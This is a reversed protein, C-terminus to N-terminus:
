EKNERIKKDLFESIHEKIEKFKKATDENDSQFDTLKFIWGQRKLIEYSKPFVLEYSLSIHGVAHDIASKKLSRLVAHEEYFAELVEKTIAAEKLEKTTVNYVEEMPFETNVRLIDIKDADRIINCFILQKDTLGEQVRYASHNRIALELIEIAEDNIIDTSLAEEVPKELYSDILRDENFLLDAGFQAHDISDADSFTNFRRVQEFRGVDHMMGIFWALDIEERSLKLSEAIEKCLEAVRFTHDIKLKIKPDNANYNSTYSLFEECIHKKNINVVM